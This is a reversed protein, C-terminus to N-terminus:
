ILHRSLYQEYLQCRLKMDRASEGAVIGSSRLRYFSETSSSHKGGIVCRVVECLAPDQNLSVFIRRLHDGYPGEDRAAGATFEAFPLGREAMQHLGRQTLFPQGGLLAYFRELESENSLPFGYRQNLERVQDVTLDALVLRTGVNFPSQNVDTIFLHAESAYAIALSLNQWPGSPDLSRENHWSRFLGFVESGFDCAFLRDVEDMGWVLHGNIRSLIERRLFREFNMSPGRRANWSDEPEADLDLQEAIAQALCLFLSDVSVLHSSNLKQFDTLVVRAGAKRAQQLGRAMLSTKGMQRAGKLLIISDNRGVASYFDQDTPRVIYFKSDLPLAGGVPELNPKRRFAEQPAQLAKALDAVIQDNDKGDEWFAYNLGDLSHLSDPFEGRFQVRVPLLRPRGNQREAFSHALQVEYSLMESEVSAASLLAVVADASGIKKEIERAWDVGVALHRDVFIQYGQSALKEELARMIQEDPQVNRRYLLVVQLQGPRAEPEPPAPVAVSVSARMTLRRLEAGLDAASQYRVERQKELARVIVQELEPSIRPNIRTASTPQRNLISDFVVASTDGRFPIMGTAMEYLVVGFSFLDTRHDLPEGRAQEPSMYSVTGVFEGPKTINQWTPQDDDAADLSAEGRNRGTLKALGFDLIKIREGEIVFLNGPKIDRHVIGRKHAAELGDAIQIGFAVMQEQSMPGPLISHRLSKGELLEMVIFHRGEHEGVDHVTCINPHNLSSATCAERQFREIAEANKSFTESLLKIAVHRGLRTDEADYVIGMGGSGLKRLIRYHSVTENLMGAGSKDKNAASDPRFLKKPVEPNGAESNWFNFLHLRAGQRVEIEGLDHLADKWHGLQQMLDAVFESILIHGQDGCDVVRQAVNIGSDSLSPNLKMEATRCVPWSHLGMRLRISGASRAERSVEVACRVPAEPDGFFVLAMADGSAVVAIQDRAQARGFESTRRVLEQLNELRGSQQSAPLSSSDAIDLLLVYALELQQTQPQVTAAM